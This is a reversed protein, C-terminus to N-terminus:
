KRNIFRYNKANLDFCIGEGKEFEPWKQYPIGFQEQHFHSPYDRMVEFHTVLVILGAGNHDEFLTDLKKKDAVTMDDNAIYLEDLREVKEKRLAKAIIEASEIARVVHSSAIYSEEIGKAISLIEQAAKEIGARGYISLHSGDYHGHRMLIVYKSSQSSEINRENHVLFDLSLQKPDVLKRM